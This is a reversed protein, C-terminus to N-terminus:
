SQIKAEKMLIPFFLDIFVKIDFQKLLSSVTPSLYALRVQFDAHLVCDQSSFSMGLFDCLYVHKYVLIFIIFSHDYNDTFSYLRTESPKGSVAIQSKLNEKNHYFICLKINIM